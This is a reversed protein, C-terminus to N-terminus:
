KPFMFQVQFRLTWDAGLDPKIVNGYAGIIWNIQQKGIPKIMSYQAGLPVTWTQSSKSAEWNATIQPVSSIAKGKGLNYSVFPQIFFLNVDQNGSGGVSWINNVLGGYVWKEKMQLAVAGAGLCWKDTGGIHNATATPLQAVPGVGWIVAGPKSPSMYGQYQIDSLGFSDSASDYILPAIGRHIWNWNESIQQPVVAMVNMTNQLKNEPGGGFNMNNMVPVSILSSIPNQTQKALKTAEDDEAYTSGLISLTLGAAVTWTTASYKKM